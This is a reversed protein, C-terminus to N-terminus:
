FNFLQNREKSRFINEYTRGFCLASPNQNRRVEICLYLIIASPANQGFARRFTSITEFTRVISRTQTDSQPHAGSAYNRICASPTFVPRALVM